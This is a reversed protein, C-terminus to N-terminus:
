WLSKPGWQYKTATVQTMNKDLEMLRALSRSRHDEWLKKKKKWNDKGDKWYYNGQTHTSGGGLFGLGVGKLMKFLLLSEILQGQSM